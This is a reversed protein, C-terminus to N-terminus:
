FEVRIGCRVGFNLNKDNSRQETYVEAFPILTKKMDQRIEVKGVKGKFIQTQSKTELFFARYITLGIFAIGLIKLGIMLAKFWSLGNILSKGAKIISFKEGEAM